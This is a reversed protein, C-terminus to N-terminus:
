LSSVSSKIYRGAMRVIAAYSAVSEASDCRSPRGSRKGEGSSAAAAIFVHQHFQCHLLCQDFGFNGKQHQDKATHSPLALDPDTMSYLRM